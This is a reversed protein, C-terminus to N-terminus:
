TSNFDGAMCLCIGQNQLIVSRLRDWLDLREPLLCSAYVNILCCQFKDLGWLGNVVVVGEMHWQSQVMFKEADWISILGGARGM